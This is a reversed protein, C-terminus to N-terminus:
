VGQGQLLPMLLRTSLSRTMGFRRGLVPAVRAGTRGCQSQRRIRRRVAFHAQPSLQKSLYRLAGTVDHVRRIDVANPEPWWRQLAARFEGWAGPPVHMLLHVHERNPGVFNERVWLAVWPISRRRLWVGLRSIVARRLYKGPDAPPLAIRGFHITILATLPRGMREAAHMAESLLRVDRPELARSHKRHNM